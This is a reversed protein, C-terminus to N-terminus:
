DYILYFADFRTTAIDTADFFLWELTKSRKRVDQPLLQETKEALYLLIAASQTLVIPESDESEDHDVIVPIRASPNLKLFSLTRTDGLSLYLFHRTYSLGLEEVRDGNPM